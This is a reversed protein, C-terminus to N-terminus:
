KIKLLKNIVNYPYFIDDESGDLKNSIGTVKFLNIIKEKKIYEYQNSTNYWLENIDKLIRIRSASINENSKNEFLLYDSFRNKLYIKFPFNITRYLPQLLYVKRKPIFIFDIKNNKLKELVTDTKHRPCYDFILLKKLQPKYKSLICNIYDISLEEDIWANNQTRTIIKLKNTEIYKSIETNVISDKKRKFIVYPEM